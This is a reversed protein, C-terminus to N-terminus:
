RMVGTFTFPYFRKHHKKAIAEGKANMEDLWPQAEAKAEDYTILGALLRGRIDFFAQQYKTEMFRTKGNQRISLSGAFVILVYDVHNKMKTMSKMDAHQVIRQKTWLIRWSKLINREISM